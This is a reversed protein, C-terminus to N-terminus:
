QLDTKLKEIAKDFEMVNVMKKFVKRRFANAIVLFERSNSEEAQYCLKEIDANSSANVDDIKVDNIKDMILKRKNSKQDEKVKSRQEELHISYRQRASKCSKLM